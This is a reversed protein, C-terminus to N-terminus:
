TRKLQALKGAFDAKTNSIKNHRDIIARVRKVLPPLSKLVWVKTRKANDSSLVFTFFANRDKELQVALSAPLKNSNADTTYIKDTELEALRQIKDVLMQEHQSCAYIKNEVSQITLPDEVDRFSNNEVIQGVKM